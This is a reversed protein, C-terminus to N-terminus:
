ISGAVPLGNDTELFVLAQQIPIELEQVREGL